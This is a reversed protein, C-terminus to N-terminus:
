RVKFDRGEFRSGKQLRRKERGLCCEKSVLQDSITKLLAVTSATGPWAKPSGGQRIAMDTPERALEAM